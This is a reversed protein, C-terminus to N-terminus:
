DSKNALILENWSFVVSFGRSHMEERFVKEPQHSTILVFDGGWAGLSKVVGQYDSFLREQVPKIGLVESLITEHEQLLTEFTELRNVTIIQQTLSSITEITKPTFVAQKKFTKISEDSRQKRGLYVFYLKEKFPPNWAVPLVVPKNEVIQYFVPSEATACAVDYGSGGLAKWQLQFTDVGAWAALNAILTSSSGFGFEPHFELRTEAEFSTEGNLFAPNFRRIVSFIEMLKQAKATDTTDLIRLSPLAFRAQFWLGEPQLATWKLFPTTSHSVKKVKLFQGRRVPVALARAGEMVLYEGTILLKGHAYWIQQQM